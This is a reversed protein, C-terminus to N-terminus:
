KVIVKYTYSNNGNQVNIIYAGSGVSYNGSNNIKGAKLVSGNLSTITATANGDVGNIYITGNASTVTPESASVTNISSGEGEEDGSDTADSSGLDIVYSRYNYDSDMGFGTIYRGDPTIDCPTNFGISDFLTMDELTPYKDAILVPSEDDLSWIIGSRVQWVYSGTVMYGIMTGNDSIASSTAYEEISNDTEYETLEGTTLDYRAVRTTVEDVTSVTIAVYRGNRSLGTGNFNSYPRGEGEGWKSFYNECIPDCVYSGDEQMYWVVLPYTSLDDQLYGMIVSGDESIAMASSGSVNFGVEESTPVPLEEIIGNRWICAQTYWGSSLVYNGVIISLDETADRPITETCGDPIELEVTTGDISFTLGPGNYGISVGDNTVARMDAGYYDYADAVAADGTEIDLVFMGLAGTSGNYAPGTIYKHNSSIAQSVPLWTVDDDDTIYDILQMSPEDDAYAGTCALALLLLSAIRRNISLHNRLYSKMM